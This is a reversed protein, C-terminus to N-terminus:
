EAETLDGFVKKEGLKKAATDQISDLLHLVGSFAEQYEIPVKDSKVFMDLLAEKQTRLLKWNVNCLDVLVEEKLIKAIIEYPDQYLMSCLYEIELAEFNGMQRMSRLFDEHFNKTHNTEFRKRQLANLLVPHKKRNRKHYAVVAPSLWHPNRRYDHVAAKEVVSEKIRKDDCMARLINDSIDTFLDQAITYLNPHNRKESFDITWDRDNIKEMVTMGREVATAPYGKFQCWERILERSTHGEDAYDGAVVIRDGTWSGILTSVIGASYRKNKGKGSEHSWEIRQDPRLTSKDIPNKSSIQKIQLDGGGRGNGDALLVAMALLTGNSGSGFELLKLGENFAHTYLYERKNTNVIKYYQGM